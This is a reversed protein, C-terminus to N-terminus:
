VHKKHIKLQTIKLNTKWLGQPGHACANVQAYVTFDGIEVAKTINKASFYSTM